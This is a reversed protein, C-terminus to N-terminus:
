PPWVTYLSTTSRTTYLPFPYCTLLSTLDVIFQLELANLGNVWAIISRFVPILESLNGRPGVLDPGAHEHFRVLSIDCSLFIDEIPMSIVVPLLGERWECPDGPCSDHFYKEPNSAGRSYGPNWTAAEFVLGGTALMACEGESLSNPFGEGAACRCWGPPLASPFPKHIRM